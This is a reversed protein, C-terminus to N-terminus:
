RQNDIRVNIGSPNRCHSQLSYLFLFFLIQFYSCQRRRFFQKKIKEFEYCHSIASNGIMCASVLVKVNIYYYIHTSYTVVQLMSLKTWDSLENNMSITTDHMVQLRAPPASVLKDPAPRDMEMACEVFMLNSCTWVKRDTAVLGSSSDILFSKSVFNSWFFLSWYLPPSVIKKTFLLNM